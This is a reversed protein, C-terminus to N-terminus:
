KLRQFWIGGNQYIAGVRFTAHLEDVTYHILRDALYKCVQESTFWSGRDDAWM